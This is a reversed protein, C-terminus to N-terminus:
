GKNEPQRDKDEAKFETFAPKRRNKVKKRTIVNESELETLDPIERDDAIKRHPM